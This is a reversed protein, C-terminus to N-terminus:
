GGQRQRHAALDIVQRAPKTRQANRAAAKEQRKARTRAVDCETCNGNSVRRLTHGTGDDHKGPCLKGQFYLAPPRPTRPRPAPQVEDAGKCVETFDPKLGVTSLWHAREEESVQVPNPSQPEPFQNGQVAYEQFDEKREKKEVASPEPFSIRPVLNGSAQEPITRWRYLVTYFNRPRKGPVRRREVHLYGATECEQVCAEIYRETVGSDHAITAQSPYAPAGHEEVYATIALLVLHAAHSLAHANRLVEIVLSM